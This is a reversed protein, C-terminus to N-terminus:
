HDAPKRCEGAVKHFLDHAETIMTTIDKDDKKESVAAWLDSCKIMLKELAAKTEEAKFDAPIEAAYWNKSAKYLDGAKEKLPVLNGEEAPHFTAAMLSHFAKMEAWEAKKAGQGFSTGVLVVLALLLLNIKKM